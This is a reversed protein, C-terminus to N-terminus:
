SSCVQKGITQINLPFLSCSLARSSQSDIQQGWYPVHNNLLYKPQQLALTNDYTSRMKPAPKTEFYSDLNIQQATERLENSTEQLILHTLPAYLYPSLCNVRFVHPRVETDTLLLSSFEKLIVGLPYMDQKVSLARIQVNLETEKLKTQNM